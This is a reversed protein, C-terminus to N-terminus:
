VIMMYVMYRGIDGEHLTRKIGSSRTLVQASARGFSYMSSNLTFRQPAGASSERVEHM